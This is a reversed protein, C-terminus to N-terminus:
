MLSPVLSANLCTVLSLQSLGTLSRDGAHNVPHGTLNSCQVQAVLRTHFGDPVVRWLHQKQKSCVGATDSSLIQWFVAEDDVLTQM